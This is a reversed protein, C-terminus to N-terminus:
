QLVKLIKEIEMQNSTANSLVGSTHYCSANLRQHLAEINTSRVGGGPMITIRGNSEKMLWTLEDLGAIASKGIGSTLITKFGCFIVDELNRQYNVSVDFARHFTCPLPSAMEVLLQNRKIDINGIADLVGFVFGDAGLNKFNIIENKMLEFTSETYDFGGGIPRIMVYIEGSFNQRALEFVNESPTIGGKAFDDCLEIRSAGAAKAILVSAYNFCAIELTSSM